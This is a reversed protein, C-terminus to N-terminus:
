SSVGKLQYSVPDSILHYIVLYVSENIYKCFTIIKIFIIQNRFICCHVYRLDKCHLRVLYYNHMITFSM